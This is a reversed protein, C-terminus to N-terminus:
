KKWKHFYKYILTFRTPDVFFKVLAEVFVNSKSPYCSVKFLKIFVFVFFFFIRERHKVDDDYKFFTTKLITQWYAKYLYRQERLFINNTYWKMDLIFRMKHSWNTCIGCLYIFMIISIKTTFYPFHIFFNSSKLRFRDNERSVVRCVHISQESIIMDIHHRLAM